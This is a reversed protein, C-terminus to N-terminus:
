ETRERKVRGTGTESEQKRKRRGDRPGRLRRLLVALFGGDARAEHSDFRKDDNLTYERFVAFDTWVEVPREMRIADIYNVINVLVGKLAAVCANQLRQAQERDVQSLLVDHVPQQSSYHFKIEHRIARTRQRRCEATRPVIGQSSMCRGFEDDFPISDNPTFNQFLGGDEADREERRDEPFSANVNGSHHMRMHAEAEARTNFRKCKAGKYGSHSALALASDTNIEPTRGVAVAYYRTAKAQSKRATAATTTPSTTEPSTSTLGASADDQTSSAKCKAGPYGSIQAQCETASCYIGPTRGTRVGYYKQSKAGAM